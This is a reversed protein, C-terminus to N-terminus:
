NLLQEDFGAYLRQRLVLYLGGGFALLNLALLAAYWLTLRWRFALRRTM